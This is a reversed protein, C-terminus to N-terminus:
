CPGGFGVGVGGSGWTQRGIEIWVYTVEGEIVM